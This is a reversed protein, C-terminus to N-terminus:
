NKRRRDPTEDNLANFGRLMAEIYDIDGRMIKATAAMEELCDTLAVKLNAIRLKLAETNTPKDKIDM